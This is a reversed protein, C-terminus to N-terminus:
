YKWLHQFIEKCYAEIAEIRMRRLQDDAVKHSKVTYLEHLQHRM